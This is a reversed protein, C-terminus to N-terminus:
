RIFVDMLLKRMTAKIHLQKLTVFIVKKQSIMYKYLEKQKITEFIRSYNYNLINQPKTSDINSM